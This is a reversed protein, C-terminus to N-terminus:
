ENNASDRNDPDIETFEAEETSEKIIDEISKQIITTEIAKKQPTIYPLTKIAADLRIKAEESSLGDNKIIELVKNNYEEVKILDNMKLALLRKKDIEKLHKNSIINKQKHYTSIRYDNM